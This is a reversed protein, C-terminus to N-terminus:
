KPPQGGCHFLVFGMLCCVGFFMLWIVSNMAAPVPSEATDNTGYVGCISAAGIGAVPVTTMFNCIIGMCGKKEMFLSKKFNVTENIQV